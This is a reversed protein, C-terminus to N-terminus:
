KLGYDLKKEHKRMQLIHYIAISIIALILIIAFAWSFATKTTRSEALANLMIERAKGMLIIAEQRRGAKELDRAVETLKLADRVEGGSEPLQLILDDVEKKIQIYEGLNGSNKSPSITPSASAAKSPTPSGRPGPGAGSGSGGGGSPPSTPVPTPTFTANPNISPSPSITANPNISPSPSITANPNVSPSASISPSPVISASPSASVSPSPSPIATLNATVNITKGGQVDVIIQYNQYGTKRFELPHSGISLNSLIIPTLGRSIFDLFVSATSPNSRAYISGTAPLPTPSATPSPSASPIPSPSPSAVPSPSPYPSPSPSPTPAGIKRVTVSAKSVTQVGAIIEIGNVTDVYKDNPKLMADRNHATSYNVDILYTKGYTQQFDQPAFRILLGEPGGVKNDYGIRRRYEVYYCAKNGGTTCSVNGYPVILAQLNDSALELPELDFTGESAIRYNKPELWGLQIKNFASFHYTVLNSAMGDFNDGGDTFDCTKLNVSGPNIQAGCYLSNAHELGFGHGMEHLAISYSFGYSRLISISFSASGDATAYTAKGGTSLGVWPCGIVPPVIMIVRSFHPFYVDKDAAAIGPLRISSGTCTASINLKYPGYYTFNFYAKNFSNERYWRDMSAAGAPMSTLNFSYNSDAFNLVIVATQQLGLADNAARVLSPLAVLLLFFVAILSASGRM